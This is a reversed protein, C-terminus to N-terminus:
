APFCLAAAAVARKARTDTGLPPRTSAKLGNCGAVLGTAGIDAENENGRDPWTDDKFRRGKGFVASGQDGDADDVVARPREGADTRERPLM